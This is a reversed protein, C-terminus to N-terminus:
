ARSFFLLSIFAYVLCFYSVQFFTDWCLFFLAFYGIVILLTAAPLILRVGERFLTQDSNHVTHAHHVARAHLTFDLKKAEQLNHNSDKIPALTHDTYLTSSVVWM